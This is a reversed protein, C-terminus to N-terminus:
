KRCLPDVKPLYTMLLVLFISVLPMVMLAEFKGGYRDVEGAANWHVPVQAGDPLINWAYISAGFMIILLVASWILGTRIM